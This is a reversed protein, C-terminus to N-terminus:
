GPRPSPSSRPPWPPSSCTLLSADASRRPPRGAWPARWAGSSWISSKNPFPLRRRHFRGRPEKQQARQQEGAEIGVRLDVGQRRPVVPRGLLRDELEHLHGGVLRVRFEHRGLCADGREVLVAGGPDLLRHVGLDHERKVLDPHHRLLVRPQLVDLGEPGHQGPVARGDRLQRHRVQLLDEGHRVGAHRDVRELLDDLVPDGPGLVRAELAGVGLEDM